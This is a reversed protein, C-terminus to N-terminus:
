RNGRTALQRVKTWMDRADIDDDSGKFHVTNCRIIDAGIRKVLVDAEEVRGARMLRNKQRLKSKIDPTMYYPDKSTVSISSEPYYKDLLHSYWKSKYNCAHQM